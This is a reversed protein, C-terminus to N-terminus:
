MECFEKKVTLDEAEWTENNNQFDERVPAHNLLFHPMMNEPVKERKFICIPPTRHTKKPESMIYDKSKRRQSTGRSQFKKRQFEDEDVM